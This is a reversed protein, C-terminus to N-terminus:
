PARREPTWPGWWPVSCAPTGCDSRAAGTARRRRSAAATVMPGTPEAASISSRGSGLRRPLGDRPSHLGDRHGGGARGQHAAGSAGRAPEAGGPQEDREGQQDAGRSARERHHPGNEVAHHGRARQPEDRLHQHQRRRAQARPLRQVGLERGPAVPQHPHEVRRVVGGLQPGAHQVRQRRRDGHGAGGQADPGAEADGHGVVGVARVLQQAVGAERHAGGPGGAAVPDRPVRRLHVLARAPHREVAPQAARHLVAPQRDVVLRDHAQDVRDAPVDRGPRRGPVLDRLHADAGGAAEHGAVQGADDGRRERAVVQRSTREADLRRSLATTGSASAAAEASDRTRPRPAATERSSKPVPWDDSDCSAGSGTSLTFISREKVRLVADSAAPSRRSVEMTPTQWASASGTTASPTSCRESPSKRALGPRVAM